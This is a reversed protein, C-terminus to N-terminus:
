IEKNNVICLRILVLIVTQVLVLVMVVLISEINDFILLHNVYKNSGKTETPEEPVSRKLYVNMKEEEREQDQKMDKRQNNKDKSNQKVGTFKNGYENDTKFDSGGAYQVHIFPPEPIHEKSLCIQTISRNKSRPPPANKKQVYM